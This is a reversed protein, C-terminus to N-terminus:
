HKSTLDYSSYLWDRRNVNRPAFILAVLSNSHSRCCQGSHAGLSFSKLMSKSSYRALSVTACSTSMASSSRCSAFMTGVSGKLRKGCGQRGKSVNPAELLCTPREKVNRPVRVHKCLTIIVAFM